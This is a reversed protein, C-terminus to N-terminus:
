SATEGELPLASCLDFRTSDGLLTLLATYDIRRFRKKLYLWLFKM